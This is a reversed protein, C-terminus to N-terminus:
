GRLIACDGVDRVCAVGRKSPRRDFLDIRTVTVITGRVFNLSEISRTDVGAKSLHSGKVKFLIWCVDAFVRRLRWHEGKEKRHEGNRELAQGNPVREGRM